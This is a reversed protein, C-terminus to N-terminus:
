MQISTKSCYRMSYQTEVGFTETTNERIQIAERVNRMRFNRHCTTRIANWTKCQLNLRNLNFSPM